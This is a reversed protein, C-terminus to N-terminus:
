NFARRTVAPTLSSWVRDTLCNVDSPLLLITSRNWRSIFAAYGDAEDEIDRLLFIRYSRM